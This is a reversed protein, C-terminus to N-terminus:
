QRKWIKNTRVAVNWAHIVLTLKDVGVVAGFFTEGNNGLKGTYFLIVRAIGCGVCGPKPVGVLVVVVNIQGTSSLVCHYSHGVESNWDGLELGSLNGISERNPLNSISQNKRNKLCGLYKM